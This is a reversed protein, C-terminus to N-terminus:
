EGQEKGSERVCECEKAIAGSIAEACSQVCEKGDEVSSRWEMGVVARVARKSLACGSRKCLGCM